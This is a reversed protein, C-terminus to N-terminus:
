GLFMGRTGLIIGTILSALSLWSWGDRKETILLECVYFIIIMQAVFIVSGISFMGASSVILLACLCFVVLYDTATVEFEIKRRRPSFKVAAVFAIVLM